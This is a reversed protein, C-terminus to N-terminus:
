VSLASDVIGIISIHVCLFMLVFVSVYAERGKVKGWNRDWSLKLFTSDGGGGLKIRTQAARRGHLVWFKSLTKRASGIM